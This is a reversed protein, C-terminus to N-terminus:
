KEKSFVTPSVLTLIWMFIPAWHASLTNIQVRSPIALGSRAQFGGVGNHVPPSAPDKANRIKLNQCDAANQGSGSDDELLSTLPTKMFCLRM